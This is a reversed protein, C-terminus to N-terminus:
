RETLQLEGDGLIRACSLMDGDYYNQFRSFTPYENYVTTIWKIQVELFPEEVQLPENAM